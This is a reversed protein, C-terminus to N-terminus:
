AEPNHFPPGHVPGKGGGRGEAVIEEIGLIWYGGGGRVKGVGYSGGSRGWGARPKVARPQIRADRAIQIVVNGPAVVGYEPAEDLRIRNHRLRAVRLAQVPVAVHVVVRHPVRVRAPMVQNEFSVWARLGLKSHTAISTRDNNEM